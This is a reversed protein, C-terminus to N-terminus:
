AQKRVKCLLSKLAAKGSVPDVPTEDTLINVNAEDWGHPISVVGRLIDETVRAKLTISGRRTEVVAM